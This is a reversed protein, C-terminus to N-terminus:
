DLVCDFWLNLRSEQWCSLVEEKQVLSASNVVGWGGMGGRLCVCGRTREGWEEGEALKFPTIVVKEVIPCETKGKICISHQWEWSVKGGTEGEMDTCADRM